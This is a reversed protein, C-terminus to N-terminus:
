SYRSCRFIFFRTEDSDAMFSHLDIDKKNLDDINITVKIKDKSIKEFKM